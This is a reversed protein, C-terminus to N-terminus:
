VLDPRNYKILWDKAKDLVTDDFLVRWPGHRVRHEASLDLRNHQFLNIFGPPPHQRMIVNRCADEPDVAIMQRFATQPGCGIAQAEDCDQRLQEALQKRLRRRESDDIM